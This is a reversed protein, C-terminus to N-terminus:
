CASYKSLEILLSFFTLKGYLMFNPWAFIKKTMFTRPRMIREQLYFKIM